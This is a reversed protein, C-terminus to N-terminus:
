SARVTAKRMEEQKKLIRAKRAEAEEAAAVSATMRLEGALEVRDKAGHQVLMDKRQQFSEVAGKAIAEVQKAENIARKIAIVTPHVAVEKELMAETIKTGKETYDERLDRYVQSERVELLLKFDNVQRSAKAAVEAYHLHLGPQEQMASSLDTLSYSIDKKIQDADLPNKVTIKRTSAEEAM